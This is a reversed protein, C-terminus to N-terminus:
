TSMLRNWATAFEALNRAAVSVVGYPAPTPPANGDAFQILSVMLVHRRVAPLVALMRPDPQGTIVGLAQSEDLTVMGPLAALGPDGASRTAAALMDLATVAGEGGRDTAMAAGGTTRLELPFGGRIAAVALSAAASVAHEFSRDSYAAASTDLVVMLRPQNPVVNHRVMMQGTRATSKWHILRWDDGPVYERLSHFAIGGHPSYSSTPGDMDRTQGTPVPAVVVQRPHVYLTSHTSYARGVRMLRLPDTHGITLPGVQYIGRDGTPLPYTDTYVAGPALSPIPAFIRLGAISEAALIPPSRRRAENTLTIVATASEGATVRQPRIERVVALDPRLLMWLAAMVLAALCAFGLAALEPYDALRGLGLLLVAAVAVGVGSRTLM